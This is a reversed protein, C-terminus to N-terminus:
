DFYVLDFVAQYRYEKKATDTYNYSNNLKCKSISDISIINRMARKVKENLDAAKFLSNSYSQIAITASSILNEASGGTLEVKIYQDPKKEPTESYAPINLTDTLYNIITKEIM